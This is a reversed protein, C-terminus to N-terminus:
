YSGINDAKKLRFNLHLQSNLIAASSAKCGSQVTRM